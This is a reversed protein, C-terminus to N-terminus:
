QIPELVLWGGDLHTRFNGLFSLGLLGDSDNGLSSDASPEIFVPVNNLRADGVSVSAARGGFALTKGNATEVVHLDTMEIGASAALRRSLVTRSAGTDVIMHAPMGNVKVPVIIATANPNYRVLAKGTGSFPQCSGGARWNTMLTTLQQSRRRESDFAIYDRLTAMAGCPHGAKAELRAIDYYVSLAVNKPDSFLLLAQRMDSLAGVINTQMERVGARWGYVDPDAPSLDVLQNATQEAGPLDGSEKQAVFLDRLLEENPGCKEKLWGVFKIIAVYEAQESLAGVLDAALTRNCPERILRRVDLQAEKDLRHYVDSSVVYRASDNMYQLILFSAATAAILTALVVLLVTLRPFGGRQRIGSSVIRDRPHAEMSLIV